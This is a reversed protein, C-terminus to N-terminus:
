IGLHMKITPGFKDWLTTLDAATGLAHPIWAVIAKLIGKSREDPKKTAEEAITSLAEVVEKKNADALTASVVAQTFEKLVHAFETQSEGGESIQELSANINGIQSGLNLNAISSNEIHIIPSKMRLDEDFGPFPRIDCGCVNVIEQNNEDQLEHVFQGMQNPMKDVSKVIGVRNMTGFLVRRGISYRSPARNM